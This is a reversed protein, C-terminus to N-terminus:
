CHPPEPGPRKAMRVALGSEQELMYSGVHSVPQIKDVPPELLRRDCRSVAAKNISPKQRARAM